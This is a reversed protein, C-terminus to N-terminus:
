RSSTGLRWNRPQTPTAKRTELHAVASRIPTKPTPILTQEIRPFTPYPELQDQIEALRTRASLELAAQIEAQTAKLRRISDETTPYIKPTPACIAAPAARSKLLKRYMQYKPHETGPHGSLGVEFNLLAAHYEGCQRIDNQSLESPTSDGLASSDSPIYRWMDATLEPNGKARESAMNSYLEVANVSIETNDMENEPEEELESEEDKEIKTWELEAADKVGQAELYTGLSELHRINEFSEWTTDGSMWLLKFKAERGRGAHEVVCEVMWERSEDEIGVIVQETLRGPFRRDDNPIHPRLLSAHFTPRIGRAKLASPLEIKYTTGKTIESEIKHPGIYKPVLKRAFRKPLRMNKTSLYVLDGPKFDAASRHKNAQEIQRVRAAIKANHAAIIAEKQKALFRRVGSYESQTNWTIPPPVRGCNLEFPSYGTSESRCANIAYEIGPLHRAWANQKGQICQRIMSGMTKNARETAGDTEPHYASSMRLQVGMLKNTEQWFTSTFLSDRDSVIVKPIGHIKYVNEFLLEAIDKARFNQKSPMLRVMGTAHDIVVCIMDWKGFMNESEPLPGVFDIGVREWPVEALKLPVCSACYDAVDKSMTNWWVSGRMAHLTKRQSAHRLLEHSEKILLERASFRGIRIDPICLLRGTKGKLYTLGDIVEFNKFHSPNKMVKSFLNDSKYKNRINDLYTTSTTVQEDDKVSEKLIKEEERVHAAPDDAQETELEAPEAARKNLEADLAKKKTGSKRNDDGHTQKNRGYGYGKKRHHTAEMTPSFKQVQTRERNSRRPAPDASEPDTVPPQSEPEVGAEHEANNTGSQDATAKDDNTEPGTIPNKRMTRPRGRRRGAPIVANGVYLPVTLPARLDYETNAISVQNPGDEEPMYESEARTMGEPEDAYIRSLADAVKNDVGPIHVIDFDFQNIFELWRAQRASLNKQTLLHELSKNDTFVCFRVGHLQYQFKQMLEKIALLELEHVPYNQQTATFKASWFMAIKATKPDDGQSLVGSAGTCSADTVLNIRPAGESYDIAARHHNRWKEVTEKVENFARQATADWRWNKNIAARQTLVGMPIRIGGCNPALYGVAGLFSMLQEKSNPTKWNKVSDVKHPDMLIGKDNIIHGLIHLEKAFFQMKKPSLYLKEKLLIGLVEQIRQMHEKITNTFIVIDDLFVHMFVGIQKSFISNMLSQYTAGANCDGQQMVHSIMTGSPTTFILKPVDKPEIRIQEYANTGDILSKFKYQSVKWLIEQIDPLPSALKYTNANQERKDLVTRLSVGGLGKKPILLMPIANKGTAYEWRGSNIYANLKEEWQGRLADPCRSSRWSYTKNDDITPIRHNIVRLPPLPTESAKKCVDESEKRLVERLKELNEEVIETACSSIVKAAKGEIPQAKPYRVHVGNPNFLISVGHKFM